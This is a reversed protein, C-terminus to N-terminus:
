IIARLIEHAPIAVALRSPTFIRAVYLRRYVSRRAFRKGALNFIERQVKEALSEFRFDIPRNLPRQGTMQVYTQRHVKAAGPLGEAAIKQPHKLIPQHSLM